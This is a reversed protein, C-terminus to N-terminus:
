NAKEATLVKIEVRRNKTQNLPDVPRDWGVGDVNFRNPDLDTFKKLLAEKIATARKLSLDKVAEVPVQGKMSADTHGEIIIRASGFQGALQAIEELINEVNADYREEVKKGNVTREITAMPDFSNPFFHVVVTNTLIEEGEAKVTQLEKPAVKSEYEVKSTSYKEDQALKQIVSFDMVQDFPVPRHSISGIRRYLMYARQWIREFNTPNNENIFFQFNEAWNTSHADGLMSLADSAPINYGAAMLESVKKKADQQKLAEMADFIGRVIGEIIPGHDRAFDARAFWVDAILRNADGTTVLMRNGKIKALNYIDPAWSVCGALDKKSNFAFAAQFADETFIMEVEPPQVNGSVLMNLAFYHSPSNQALVLKKGRLDAATKINERVVIGDGGNSFDVQQYIRPMIRSERPKGESDVFGELFLPVMDLTAWGIPVEGAAYANRMAVPNDILALEVKFKEGGPATWEKGAKFGDNALVIPAWGAWVNLAFRVTNNVYKYGAVGTVPPLKEAPKFRYAKVTTPSATDQNSEAPQAVEKPDIKAQPGTGGGPAVPKPAILDSRYIAFAILALVVVGVVIYFGGKPQEAM